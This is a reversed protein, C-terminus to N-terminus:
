ASRRRSTSVGVAPALPLTIRFTSGVGEVSEVSLQGGSAEVSWKAISLGLGFGGVDSLSQSGARYFRDFIRLQAEASIGPGTDSVELVATSPSAWVRVHIERGAPTYKIANDVLNMVAQRVGIRDGVAQPAGQVHLSLVQQKEEALVGLQSSVEEALSGLDVPERRVTSRGMAGRAFTLLRDVLTGLRDVEELMSLIVARYAHADRPERLAVEGVSRMATLPTRLEHSVDAAFRRMHEFSAELRGLTNNFVGALRGLEDDPNDAPLRDSLRDASIARAHDAMKEIPALARRALV